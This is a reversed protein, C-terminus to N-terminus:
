RNNQEAEACPGVEVNYGKELVWAKNMKCWCDVLRGVPFNFANPELMNLKFAVTDATGVFDLAPCGRIKSRGM